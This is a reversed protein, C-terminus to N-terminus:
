HKFTKIVDRLASAAEKAVPVADKFRGKDFKDYMAQHAQAFKRVGDALNKADAEKDSLAQLHEMRLVAFFKPVGPLEKTALISQGAVTTKFLETEGSLGTLYVQEVAEVVSASLDQVPKNYTKILKKIVTRRYLDTILHFGSKAAKTYADAEASTAIKASVLKSNLADLETDFTALDDAALAGLARAYTELAKQAKILREADEKRKALAQDSVSQGTAGYAKQRELSQPFDRAVQPYGAVAGANKGFEAVPKLSACGVLFSSVLICSAFRIIAFVPYSQKPAM